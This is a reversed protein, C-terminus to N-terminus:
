RQPVGVVSAFYLGGAGRGGAERALRTAVTSARASSTSAAIKRPRTGDPWVGRTTVQTITATAITM